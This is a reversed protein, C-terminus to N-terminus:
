AVCCLAGRESTHAAHGASKQRTGQLTFLAWNFGAAVAYRRAIERPSSGTVSSVARVACLFRSYRVLASDFALHQLVKYFVRYRADYLSPTIGYQMAPASRRNSRGLSLQGCRGNASYAVAYEEGNPPLAAPPTYAKSDRQNTM